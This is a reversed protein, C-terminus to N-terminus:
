NLKTINGVVVFREDGETMKDVGHMAYSPYFIIDSSNQTEPYIKHDGLQFYFCKQKPVEVFHVWSILHRPESYHNHVDIVANLERKYLQGWISNFTYISKTDLLGFKKLISKLKPVYIELLEKDVFGGNVTAASNNPNRHYGTYHQGWPEEGKLFYDQSYKEKLSRVTYPSLCFKEHWIIM